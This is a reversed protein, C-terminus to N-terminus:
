EYIVEPSRYIPKKVYLKVDDENNIFKNKRLKTVSEDKIAIAIKNNEIHNQYVEGNSKEGISIGKDKNNIIYSNKINFKSGSLDIGDGSSNRIVTNEITVECFDCDFGDSQADIINVNKMNIKSNNAYLADESMARIVNINELSVKSQYFCLACDHYNNKGYAREANEIILNKIDGQVQYFSLNGWSQKKAKIILKGKDLNFKEYSEITNGSSMEFIVDGVFSIYTGKPIYLNENFQYKGSKFTMKKLVRFNNKRKPISEVRKINIKKDTNNNIIELNSLRLKNGYLVIKLPKLDKQSYSKHQLKNKSKIDLRSDIQNFELENENLLIKNVRNKNSIKIASIEFSALSDVLIELELQNISYIEKVFLRGFKLENLILHKEEKSLSDRKNKIIYEKININNQYSENIQVVSNVSLFLFVVLNFLLFIKSLLNRDSRNLSFVKM